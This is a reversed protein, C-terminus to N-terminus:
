GKVHRSWVVKSMAVGGLMAGLLWLFGIVWTFDAGFVAFLGLSIASLGFIQLISNQSLVRLEEPRLVVGGASASLGVFLVGCLVMCMSHGFKMFYDSLSFGTRFPSMGFQDCIALSLTGVVLHIGVMKGFITWPSPNLDAHVRSLLVKSINEPVPVGESKVFEHFDELWEKESIKNV